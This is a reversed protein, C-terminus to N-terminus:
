KKFSFLNPIYKKINGRIFSYFYANQLLKQFLSIKKVTKSLKLIVVWQQIINYKM